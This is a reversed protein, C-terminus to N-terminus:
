AVSALPLGSCHRIVAHRGEAPGVAGRDVPFNSEFMCRGVGFSEVQARWECRLSDEDHARSTLGNEMPDAIAFFSTWDPVRARTEVVHRVFPGIFEAVAASTPAAAAAEFGHGSAVLLIGGLKCSVNERAAVDVVLRRWRGFSDQKQAGGWPGVGLPSGCHNLV